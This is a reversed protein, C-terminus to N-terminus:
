SSNLERLLKRLAVTRHQPGEFPSELPEFVPELGPGQRHPAVIRGRVRGTARVTRGDPWVVAVGCLYTAGSEPAVAFLRFSAPRFGGQAEAWRRTHMGPVGHLVDVELGVDDGLAPLGTADAATQAKIIANGAYTDASEPPYSLGEPSAVIEVGLGLLLERWEELKGPNTTAIVLRPPLSM